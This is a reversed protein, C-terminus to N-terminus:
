GKWSFLARLQKKKRRVWRRVVWMVKEHLPRDMMKQISPLARTKKNKPRASGGSEGTPHPWPVKKLSTKPPPEHSLFARWRSPPKETYKGDRERPQEAQNRRRQAASMQPLHTQPQRAREVMKGALAARNAASAARKQRAHEKREQEAQEALIRPHVPLDEMRDEAEM